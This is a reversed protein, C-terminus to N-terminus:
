TSEGQDGQNNLIQSLEDSISLCAICCFFVEYAIELPLDEFIKARERAKKEDYAENKERCLIACTLAAYEWRGKKMRNVALEFDAAEMFEIAKSSAMPITIGNFFEQEPLYYKVGKFKFSDIGKPEFNPTFVLSLEVNQLYGSYIYRREHPNLIALGKDTINSCIRILEGYYMPLIKIRVDDDIEINTIKSVVEKTQEQMSLKHLEQISLPVLDKYLQLIKGAESITIKSWDIIGNDDFIKLRFREGNSLEFNM